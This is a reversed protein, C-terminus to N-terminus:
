RDSGTEFIPNHPGGKKPKPRRIMDDVDKGSAVMPYVGDEQQVVFEVLVTGPLERAKAIAAPIEERSTVRIGNLGHAEALKVFDPSLMPTAVYRGGYFFEQWQRVMGLFGNNIIAIHVKIGEQACTGIRGWGVKAANVEKPQQVGM